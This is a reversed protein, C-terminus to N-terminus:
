SEIRWTDIALGILLGVVAGGTMALPIDAALLLAALLGLAAGVAVLPGVPAGTRADRGEDPARTPLAM